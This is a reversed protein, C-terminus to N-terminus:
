KKNYFVILYFKNGKVELGVENEEFKVLDYFCEENVKREM